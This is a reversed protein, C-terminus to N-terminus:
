YGRIRRLEEAEGTNLSPSYLMAGAGTLARTAAPGYQAALAQMRQIFTGTQGAAPANAAPNYPQSLAKDFAPNAGGTFTTPAPAPVKRSELYKKGLYAAGATPIAYKAVDYGLQGVGAQITATEEPGRDVWPTVPTQVTTTALPGTPKPQLAVEQVPKPNIFEQIQEETYGYARAEQIQRELEKDM